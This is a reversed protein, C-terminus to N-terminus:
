SAVRTEPVGSFWDRITFRSMPPGNGEMPEVGLFAGCTTGLRPVRPRSGIRKNLDPGLDLRQQALIPAQFRLRDPRLQVLTIRPSQWGPLQARQV